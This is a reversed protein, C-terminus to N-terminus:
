KLKELGGAKKAVKFIQDQTYCPEGDDSWNVVLEDHQILKEVNRYFEEGTMFGHVEKEHGRFALTVMQQNDGGIKIHCRSCTINFKGSGADFGAGWAERMLRSVLITMDELPAPSDDFVKSLEEVLEANTSKSKSNSLQDDKENVPM